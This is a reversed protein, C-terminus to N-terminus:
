SEKEADVRKILKAPHIEFLGFEDIELEFPVFEKEIRDKLETIKDIDKSVDITIHFNFQNPIYVKSPFVKFIQEQLEVLEQNTQIPFLLVYSNEAGTRIELSDVLIKFKKFHFNELFQLFEAEKDISLAFLTFHYPLTDNKIRDDVNKGYPIKCLKRNITEIHKTVKKMSIDNFLSVFTIRENM